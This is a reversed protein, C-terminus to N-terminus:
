YDVRGLLVPSKGPPLIAAQLQGLDPPPGAPSTTPVSNGLDFYVKGRVADVRCPAFYLPSNETPRLFRGRIFNPPEDAFAPGITGVVRGLTFNPNPQNTGPIVSDDDFGDVVFKISLAGPSVSQLQQLFSSGGPAGWPVEELVSQYYASFVSDPKGGQVRGWLDNFPVVGFDGVFYETDSVAIKIQLGWIESVMQQDPDLDVLKAPYPQNTSQVAASIIPDSGSTELATGDSYVVAKVTCNQFQWQHAGDPNWSEVPNKIRPNYNPPTNNITSPNARFVGSFHLRPVDLYSM